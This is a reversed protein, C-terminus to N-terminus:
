FSRCGAITVDASTGLWEFRVMDNMGPALKMLRRSPVGDSGTVSFSVYTVKGRSNRVNRFSGSTTSRWTGLANQGETTLSPVNHGLHVGTCDERNLIGVPVPLSPRKVILELVAQDQDRCDLPRVADRSRRDVELPIFGVPETANLYCLSADDLKAVEEVSMKSTTACGLLVTAFCGSLCARFGTGEM